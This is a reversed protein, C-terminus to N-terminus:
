QGTERLASGGERALTDMLWSVVDNTFSDKIQGGLECIDLTLWPAAGTVTRKCSQSAHSTPSHGCRVITAADLQAQRKIDTRQHRQGRRGMKNGPWATMPRPRGLFLLLSSLRTTFSIMAVTKEHVSLCLFRKM